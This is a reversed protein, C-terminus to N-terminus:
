EYKDKFSNKQYLHSILNIDIKDCLIDFNFSIITKRNSKNPLGRHAIHSPFIIIDGESVNITHFTNNFPFFLETKSSNKPFELYYVGTYHSGHIHWGHTDNNLYQQYWIDKLKVECFLSNQLFENLTDSFYPIFFKVWTRDFCESQSWDLKDISDTYYNDTAKLSEKNNKEIEDLIFKKINFHEKIKGYYICDKLILKKM